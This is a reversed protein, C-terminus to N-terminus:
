HIEIFESSIRKFITLTRMQLVHVINKIDTLKDGLNPFWLIESLFTNKSGRGVGKFSM